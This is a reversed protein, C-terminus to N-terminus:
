KKGWCSTMLNILRNYLLCSWSPSQLLKYDCKIENRNYDTSKKKKVIKYMNSIVINMYNRLINGTSVIIANKTNKSYIWALLSFFLLVSKPVSVSEKEEDKEGEKVM